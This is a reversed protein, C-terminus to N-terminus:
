PCARPWPSAVWLEAAQPLGTTREWASARGARARIRDRIEGIRRSTANALDAAEPQGRTELTFALDALETRLADLEALALRTDVASM